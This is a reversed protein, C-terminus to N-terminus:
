KFTILYEPYAMCDHFVIFMTPAAQKDVVSDYLQVSAGGKGPPVIMGQRGQTFDGTLVRCLYMFKQGQADPKSYTSSASYSANVAFYTGNGFAAANKGAYSRNFGRHNIHHVTTHCTGHFLRRENNKHGNRTELDRKKIQFNQWMSSNQIREMKIVTNQCTAKFLGEVQTYEPSGPLVPCSQCSTQSPMPSWHQPLPDTAQGATKDVRRIDLSQGQSDTAPGDPLIAKYVRGQVTVEAHNQQSESAQELHYNQVPDLSQFQGGPAQYQWDVLAATVDVSRRFDEEHHVRRLMDNIETTAHLVGKSLGEITLVVRPSKHELTVSVAFDSQIDCIRQHDADSLHLVANDNIHYTEQETLILDSLWQKARNVEMQSSGCIHFCAPELRQGEIVFNEDKQPKNTSGWSFLALQQCEREVSNGAAELIAKSVGSKLTFNQNTSNVIVDTTEKTIDGVAVQITVAGVKTEHMGQSSTINSFLGKSKPPASAVLNVSSVTPPAFRKRFEDTFSQITDQDGPYLIIEVEKLHNPKRDRSFRVVEDFILSAALDKPFGLNGTGIAPFTVSALGMQEAQGLCEKVIGSLVSQAQGKGKDWSSSITHFVRKSQLNGGNTIIVDGVDGSSKQRNLLEQLEAGAANLLAKSVPGNHLVLDAGVTNVVGESTSDQINGKTLAITLGEKTLVRDANTATQIGTAQQHPASDTLPPRQSSVVGHSGFQKRTAKELEQVIHDDDNVLHIKLLTNEGFRDDCHEKVAQIMTEACLNPPFGSRNSSIGPLGVSRCGHAEALALSGKVARKLQGVARQQNAPDFTPGMAHIIHQCALRGGAGTIVCDGPKLRGRSKILDDSERQLQPGAAKLLAEALGGDHSLNQNAVNVVADVPYSCMDAKCVAIEVGDSTLHQYVPQPAGASAGEGSDETDMLQIVCGTQKTASSIYMAEKDQFFKKAGPKSMKLTDFFTSSVLNEFLAKSETVSARSGRLFIEKERFMATVKNKVKDQWIHKKHERIFQTVASAKVGITEKVEANQYLFDALEECISLVAQSYGTVVVQQSEHVVSIMVKRSSINAAGGLRTVLDQWESMKLVTSDVAHLNKSILEEKLHVEVENLTKESLASLHISQGNIELSADMGKSTILCSTLEDQDEDQLFEHVADAFEIMNRRLSMVGDLIKGQAGMVENALGYVRVCRSAKDYALRLEPYERAMKDKLGDVLLLNYTSPSLNLKEELSSEERRVKKEIRDLIDQLPKELRDVDGVLGAVAIVGGVKDPVVVLAESTLAMVIEKRSEEWASTLARLKLSKMATLAESLATRVNHKWQDIDKTRIGGESQFTVVAVGTGPILEVQFNQAAAPSESGSQACSNLINEVLMELYERNMSEPVNELLASASVADQEAEPVVGTSGTGPDEAAPSHGDGHTPLNESASAEEDSKFWLKATGSSDEYEVQCDGGKAKKSQFYKVLKNKLKPVKPNGELEVLLAYSYTREM